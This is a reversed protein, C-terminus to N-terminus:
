APASRTGYREALAVTQRGGELMAADVFAGSELTAPGSAHELREITERARRVEDDTPLYADLIVPLQRPHIASRGLHGLERGRACSRALGDEDALDPYVSQPPRPLGAAVAANVIRSRAWDLGAETAGLESRLDAEGLSLGSVEPRSAAIMFANEVGLPSEILCHLRYPEARAPLLELV